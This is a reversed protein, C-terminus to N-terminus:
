TFASVRSVRKLSNKPTFSSNFQRVIVEQPAAAVVNEPNEVAPAAAPVVILAPAPPAAPVVAPVPVGAPLVRVPHPVQEEAMLVYRM